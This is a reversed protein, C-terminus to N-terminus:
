PRRGAARPRFVVRGPGTRGARPHPVLKEAASVNGACMCPRWGCTSRLPTGAGDAQRHLEDLADDFRGLGLAAQTAYYHREKGGGAREFFEWAEGFRGLILLGLALKLPDAQGQAVRERYESVLTDFRERTRFSALAADAYHEFTEADCEPQDFFSSLEIAETTM